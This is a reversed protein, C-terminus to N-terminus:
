FPKPKLGRVGVIGPVFEAPDAKQRAVADDVPRSACTMGTFRGNGGAGWGLGRLARSALSRIGTTSRVRDAESPESEGGKHGAAKM